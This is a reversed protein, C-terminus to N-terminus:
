GDSDYVCMRMPIAQGDRSKQGIVYADACHFFFLSGDQGSVFLYRLDADHATRIFERCCLLIGGHVGHKHWSKGRSCDRDHDTLAKLSCGVCYRM